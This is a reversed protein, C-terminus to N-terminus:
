SHIWNELTLEPIRNFHKINGTILKTCYSLTTAAIFLDADAILNGNKQLVSKLEGFNRSITIDSEIIRVTYLFREVLNTNELRKPSKYAGYYLESVTIFSISIDEDTEIRKHIVEQNGRLIEVCVDTDFLIM